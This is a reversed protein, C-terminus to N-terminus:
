AKTSSAIAVVKAKAFTVTRSAFRTSWTILLVLSAIARFIVMQLQEILSKLDAEVNRYRKKLHRAERKFADAIFVQTPPFETM